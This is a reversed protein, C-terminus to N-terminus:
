NQEEITDIEANTRPDAYDSRVTRWHVSAGKGLSRPPLPLDIEVTPAVTATM